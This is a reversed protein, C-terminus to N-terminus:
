NGQQRMKESEAVLMLVEASNVKALGQESVEKVNFLHTNLLSVIIQVLKIATDLVTMDNQSFQKFDTKEDVIASLKQVQQSFTSDLAKLEIGMKASTLNLQNLYQVLPRMSKICENVESRVNDIKNMLTKERFKLIAAFVPTRLLGQLIGANEEYLNVLYEDFRAFDAMLVPTDFGKDFSILGNSEKIGYTPRNHIREFCEAFFKLQDQLQASVSQIESFQHQIKKELEAGHSQLDELIKVRGALQDNKSQINAAANKGFSSMILKLPIQQPFLVYSVAEAVDGKSKIKLKDEALDKLDEAKDAVFYKLDDTKDGVFYKVDDVKDEVFFKVDDVKDGVFYKVDDVKDEVFYKVDDAKDEVFYKVDDVKDGVYYKVDDFKDGVSYRIESAKIEVDLKLDRLKDFLGM